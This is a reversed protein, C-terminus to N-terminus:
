GRASLDRLVESPTAHEYKVFNRYFDRYNQYGILYAIESISRGGQALLRKAQRLRVRHIYSTLTMGTERRFRRSLYNSSVHLREAVSSLSIKVHFNERIYARARGVLPLLPHEGGEYPALLDRVAATFERVADEPDDVVAFRAYLEWRKASAPRGDARGSLPVVIRPATVAQDVRQLLDHLLLVLARRTGPDHDSPTDIAGVLRGLIERCGTFDLADIREFAETELREDYGLRAQIGEAPRLGIEM